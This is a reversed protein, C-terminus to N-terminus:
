GYADCCEDVGDLFRELIAQSMDGPLTLSTLLGIPSAGAAALDSLNISALLWGWHYYDRIGLEWAVPKPSPDTSAVITGTPTEMVVACDDGFPRERHAYRKAFVEAIIRREGLTNLTTM